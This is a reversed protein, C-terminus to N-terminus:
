TRSCYIYNPKSIELVAKRMTNIEDLESIKIDLAKVHASETELRKLEKFILSYESKKNKGKM